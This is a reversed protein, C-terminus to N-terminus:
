VKWKKNISMEVGKWIAKQVRIRKKMRKDMNFLM